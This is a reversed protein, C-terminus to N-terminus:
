KKEEHEDGREIKPMRITVRTGCDLESEITIGYEEGFYIKIRENVNAVGIGSKKSKDIKLIEECKEKTMGIGNDEVEFIIDEGSEFIRINIEGEEIMQNVGHYIANEIIPQLTIKNCYYKLCQEEADIRYDFQNKYRMKEIKLYSEAHLIEKEIPILEAGKSISIRFLRALSAVMVGAEATNGQECMWTIADLTNYLFHPNIQAQLAKLETKRLIVEEQRVQKMLSQIQDVMHEFSESIMAIEKTGDIKQFHYQEGEKEFKKMAATLEQVPVAFMGGFMYSLLVLGTLILLMLIGLSVMANHVKDSIMEEVYCVGVIKWEYNNLSKVTYIAQEEIHIGEDYVTVEDRIETDVMQQKPHYIVEKDSNIIYCYGHEGISVEDLADIIESFMVDVVVIVNQNDKTKIQKYVSIVWPYDKDFVTVVHPVSIRIQEDTPIKNPFSLNKIIHNKIIYNQTYLGLIEGQDDYIGVDAIDRRQMLLINIYNEVEEGPARQAIKQVIEELEDVYDDVENCCQSVVQESMTIAYERMDKQYRGWVTIAVVVSFILITLMSMIM